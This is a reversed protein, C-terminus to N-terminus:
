EKGDDQEKDRLALQDGLWVLHDVSVDDFDGWPYFALIETTHGKTVFREMAAFLTNYEVDEPNREPDVFDMLLPRNSYGGWVAVIIGNSDAM